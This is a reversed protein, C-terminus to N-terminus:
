IQRERSSQTCTAIVSNKISKNFVTFAIVLCLLHYSDSDSDSDPDPDSDSYFRHSSWTSPIIRSPSSTDMSIRYFLSNYFSNQGRKHHHLPAVTLTNTPAYCWHRLTRMSRSNHPGVMSNSIALSNRQLSATTLLKICHQANEWTHRATSSVIEARRKSTTYNQNEAWLVDVSRFTGTKM